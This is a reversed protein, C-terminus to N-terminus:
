FLTKCRAVHNSRIESIYIYIYQQEIDVMAENESSSLFLARQADPVEFFGAFLVCLFECM